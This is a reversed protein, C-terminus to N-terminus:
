ILIIKSSENKYNNFPCCLSVNIKNCWCTLPYGQTVPTCCSKLFFFSVLKNLTAILCSSLTSCVFMIFSVKWEPICVTVVHFTLSLKQSMCLVLRPFVFIMQFITVILDCEMFVFLALSKPKFTSHKGLNLQPM